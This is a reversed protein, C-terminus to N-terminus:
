ANPTEKLEALHKKAELSWLRCTKDASSSALNLAWPSTDLGAGPHFAVDIARESHGNLEFAYSDDSVNRVCVEGAWSCVAYMQLDMAFACSAM